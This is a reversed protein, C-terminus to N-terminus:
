TDKHTITEDEHEKEIINTNIIRGIFSMVWPISMLFTSVYSTEFSLQIHEEM